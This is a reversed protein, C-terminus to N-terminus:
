LVFLQNQLLEITERNAGSFEYKDFDSLPVFRIEDHEINTPSGEFIECYYSYLTITKNPYKYISCKLFKLVWIKVGLEEQIERVLAQQETEGKEIKGGPFEWLGGNSQSAKRKAILFRNQDDRIVAAVVDIFHIAENAGEAQISKNM